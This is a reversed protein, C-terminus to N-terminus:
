HHTHNHQHEFVALSQAELTEGFLAIFADHSEVKEPTGACCIHQNLCIVRDTKAMVFHLDHSVLLVSFGYQQRLENLSDYFASQGHIDVGATPEDLVLLDPQNLLARALLVKRTEGGSLQYLFQTALHAIDLTALVDNAAQRYRKSLRLFETVTIPLTEDRNIAQPVYGCVLGKRRTVQGSSPTILGLLASLLTSKGAGNPGIITVIENQNIQMSVNDLISKQRVRYSLNEARLLATTGTALEDSM